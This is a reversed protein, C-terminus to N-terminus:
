PTRHRARWQRPPESLGGRAWFGARAARAADRATEIRARYRENPPLFYPLALGRGVLTENLLEEGRWVWLLYRGYRDRLDRDRELRVCEGPGCLGVLAARAEEGWEQGHEPADIGVLRVELREGPRGGWAGDPAGGPVRVILSDGDLARVCEADVPSSWDVALAPVAACLALLLAFLILSVVLASSTRFDAHM